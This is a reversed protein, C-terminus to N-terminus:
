FVARLVVRAALRDIKHFNSAIVAKLTVLTTFFVPAFALTMSVVVVTM